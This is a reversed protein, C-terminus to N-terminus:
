GNHRDFRETSFHKQDILTTPMMTIGVHIATLYYCYEIVERSYGLADDDLSLEM